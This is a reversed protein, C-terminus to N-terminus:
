VIFLMLINALIFGFAVISLQILVYLLVTITLFCCFARNLYNYQQNYIYVQDRIQHYNNLNLHKYHM